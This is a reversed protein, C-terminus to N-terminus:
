KKENSRRTTELQNSQILEETEFIISDFDKIQMIALTDLDKFETMEEIETKLLYRQSEDSISYLKQYFYWSFLFQQSDYFLNALNKIIKYPNKHPKYELYLELLNKKAKDINGNGYEAAYTLFLADKIMLSDKSNLYPKVIEIADQFENLYIKNLAIKLEISNNIDKKISTSDELMSYYLNNAELFNHENEFVKTLGLLLTTRISDVILSDTLESIINSAIDSSLHFISEKFENKANSFIHPNSTKTILYGFKETANEWDRMGKFALGKFYDLSDPSIKINLSDSMSIVKKFNNSTIYFNFLDAKIQNAMKGEPNSELFSILYEEPSTYHGALFKIKEIQLKIEENKKISYCINYFKLAEEYEGQNYYDDAILKAFKHNKNNSIIKSYKQYKLKFTDFRDTDLLCTLYNELFKPSVPYNKALIKNYYKYASYPHKTFDYLKILNFLALSDFISSENKINKIWYYASNNYKYLGNYSFAIANIIYDENQNTMKKYQKFHFLSKNFNKESYLIESLALVTVSNKLFLSEPIRNKIKAATKFHHEKLLIMIKSLFNQNDTNLDIAIENASDADNQSLYLYILNRKGIDSLFTKKSDYDKDPLEEKYFYNLIYYEVALKKIFLDESELLKELKSISSDYEKLYYLTVSLLLEKQENTMVLEPMFEILIQIEHFKKDNLLQLFINNFHSDKKGALIYQYDQLFKSLIENKNILSCSSFFYFFFSDFKNEIFSTDQEQITNILSLYKELKYLNKIKLITASNNSIFIDKQLIQISKEYKGSLYLRKAEQYFYSSKKQLSQQFPEIIESAELHSLQSVILYIISFTIYYYKKSFYLFKM